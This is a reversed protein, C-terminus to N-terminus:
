TQEGTPMDDQDLETIQYAVAHASPAAELHVWEAYYRTFSAGYYFILSAYFVFLLVLIIASSAGYLSGVPSQILLRDLIQEGIEILVSTVFAGIWVASWRIRIDPLYKFVIAVWITLIVLSSIHQRVVRVWDYTLAGALMQENVLVFARHMALSTLFLIGSFIIIGVAVLRDLLGYWAHRDATHKVSWLQNLSNKIIAFLTTSALLLIVVSLVTSLLSDRPQQLHQSIDQLQRASQHGFLNALKRFLQGSVRQDQGVLLESFLQSLIILIPPLAFFSFFATAAAMRIPDNAKLNAFAQNAVHLIPTVKKLRSLRQLM